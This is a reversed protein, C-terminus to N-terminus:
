LDPQVKGVVCTTLRAHIGSFYYKRRRPTVAIYNLLDESDKLNQCERLKYFPSLLGSIASFVRRTEKQSKQPVM